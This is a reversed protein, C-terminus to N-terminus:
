FGLAELRVIHDLWLPSRPTRGEQIHKYSTRMECVWQGLSTYESTRCNPTNCDGHKAKFSALEALREEFVSKGERIWEFGYAELRVIQDQSLPRAPTKGEQIKKYCSRMQSCWQGLSYNENSPTRPANCHGYKAKFSALEALREEFSASANNRRSWEFGLAELRVIQDQSLPRAPTKGKQIYKYCSRMQSCWQGLSKYESQSYRPTNCHGYKAKFSALEALREEFM